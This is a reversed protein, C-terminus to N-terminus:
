PDWARHWRTGHNCLARGRQAETEGGSSCTCLSKWWWHEERLRAMWGSIEAWYGQPLLSSPVHGGWILAGVAHAELVSATPGLALEGSEWVQAGEEALM